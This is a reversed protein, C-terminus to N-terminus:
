NIIIFKRTNAANGQSLRLFYVGEALRQGSVRGDWDFSHEPSSVAAEHINRLKRGRLDYVSVRLPGKDLGYFELRFPASGRLLPNPMQCSLVPRPPADEQISVNNYLTEVLDYGNDSFRLYGANIYNSYQGTFYVSQSFDLSQPYLEVLQYSPNIVEFEAVLPFDGDADFYEVSITQPGPGFLFNAHEPLTNQVVQYRNDQFLLAGLTSYDGLGFSPELNMLDIEVRMTLSSVMLTHSNNPWDGFQPDNVLDSINCALQLVGGSAQSQISGIQAFTPTGTSDMGLKYLGSSVVGPISFTHILAYAVSDSLAEPNMITTAYINYSTLSNMTPFSGSVNALASYFKNESCAFWTDTLDLSPAYVMVSDGSADTGILAMQATPLPFSDSDRYAPQLYAVSEGMYEMAVRLRYRLMQGFEYPVLAQLTGPSYESPSVEQWAAGNASYYCQTPISGGSLDEWRLHLDGSADRSSHRINGFPMSIQASLLSLSGALIAILIFQKM